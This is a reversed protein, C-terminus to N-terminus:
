SFFGPRHTGGEAIQTLVWDVFANEVDHQAALTGALEDLNYLVSQPRKTNHVFSANRCPNHSIIFTNYILWKEKDLQKYDSIHMYM